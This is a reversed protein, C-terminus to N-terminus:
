GDNTNPVSSDVTFGEQLINLVRAMGLQMGAELPTTNSNVSLSLGSLRRVAALQNPHLTMLVKVKADEAM